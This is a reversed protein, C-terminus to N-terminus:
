APNKSKKKKKIFFFIKILFTKTAPILVKNGHKDYFSIQIPENRVRTAIRWKINKYKRKM